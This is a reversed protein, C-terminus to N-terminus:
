RSSSAITLTFTSGAGVASAVRIKAGILHALKESLYLGLGTGDRRRTPGQDLQTFAQFLQAQATPEIGIGTDTVHIATTSGRQRKRQRLAIEVSGQETFKIANAAFNIVIQSLARRDTEIMVEKAPMRLTFRLNKAVALPRMSAAVEQLLASCYVPELKLEIKGSEIKHVDLLDNILSPLHRASSQVTKLQQEQARTLPGPLKMLLTGTFGLIANMPTRLEHSMGALFRDKSRSAAELEVNKEQLRQELLKQRTMDRAAVLVGRAKGSPDQFVGANFSVPVHRSVRTILTLEHDLVRREIMTQRLGAHASAPDTFYGAFASNVLQKRTYGTLRAAALNVDIIDGDPQVVFLADATAEVLSRNYAQQESVQQQLLAQESVDRASVFIGQAAGDKSRFVSANLSVVLRRRAKHLMVLEYNTLGNKQLTLQMGDAARKPDVFYQEFPSGIIKKRAQGVMRCAARNADTIILSADLVVLGDLSAEILGRSYTQADVIVLSVL